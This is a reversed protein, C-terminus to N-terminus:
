ANEVYFQDFLGISISYYTYVIVKILLNEKILIKM